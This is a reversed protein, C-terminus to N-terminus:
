ITIRFRSDTEICMRTTSRPAPGVDMTDDLGTGGFLPVGNGLQRHTAIRDQVGAHYPNSAAATQTTLAVVVPIVLKTFTNLAIKPM